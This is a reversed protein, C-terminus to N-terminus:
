RLGRLNYAVHVEHVKWYQGATNTWLKLKLTKGVAGALNMRGFAKTQTASWPDTGWVMSGWLSGTPTLRLTVTNGATNEGDTIYNINLYWDGSAEAVVYLWRWVKTNDRHAEYGSLEPTYYYSSIATTTGAQVTDHGTLLKTVHGNATSSGAYLEGGHVAFCSYSGTAWKSWAGQRPDDASARMFDYIYVEDNETATTGTPVAFWVKGQHTIAAAKHLQAQTFGTVDPEIVFSQADVTFQGVASDTASRALEQGNLAFFGYHNLFGLMNAFFAQARHACGGYESPSKFIYWNDPDSAGASDSIYVIYICGNRYADGKHVVISNGMASIGTIPLGDGEGIYQVNASPWIEPENPESYYFSMPHDPDGAAFLRGRSEILYKCPPLVDHDTQGATVLSADAINDTYATQAATLATVRYFTTRVGATNRYLYKQNVGMSATAVPIASLCAEISTLTLDSTITKYNSEVAATNEWSL